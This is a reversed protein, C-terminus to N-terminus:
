LEDVVGITEVSYNYDDVLYPTNDSLWGEGAAHDVIRELTAHVESEDPVGDSEAPDCEYTVTLKLQVTLKKSM